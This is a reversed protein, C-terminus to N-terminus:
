KERRKVWKYGFFVGVIVLIVGVLLLLNFGFITFQLPTRGFRRNDSTNFTGNIGSWNGDAPIFPRSHNSQGFGFSRNGAPSARSWDPTIVGLALSVLAVGVAIAIVIGLVILWSRLKSSRLGDSSLTTVKSKRM